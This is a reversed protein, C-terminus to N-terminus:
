AAGQRRRYVYIGAGVAVVSLVGGVVWGWVPIGLYRREGYVVTEPLMTAPPVLAAAGGAAGAGAAVLARRVTERTDPLDFSLLLRRDFRPAVAGPITRATAAVADMSIVSAILADLTQPLSAIEAQAVRGAFQRAPNSAPIYELYAKARDRLASVATTAGIQTVMARVSESGQPLSFRVIERTAGDWLSPIAAPLSAASVGAEAAFSQRFDPWVESLKSLVISARTADGAAIRDLYSVSLAGFVNIATGM